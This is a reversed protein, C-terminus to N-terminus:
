YCALFYYNLYNIQTFLLNFSTTLYKIIKKVKGNFFIRQMIFFFFFEAFFLSPNYLSCWRMVDSLKNEIKKCLSITKEIKIWRTLLSIRISNTGNKFPLFNLTFTYKILKKLYNWYWLLGNRFNQFLMLRWDCVWCSFHQLKFFQVVTGKVLNRTWIFKNKQHM